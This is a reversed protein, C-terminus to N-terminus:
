SIFSFSISNFSYLGIFLLLQTKQCVDLHSRGKSTSQNEVKDNDIFFFLIKDKKKKNEIDWVWWSM